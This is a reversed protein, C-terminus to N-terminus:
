SPRFSSPRVNLLRRFVANMHSSDCFGCSEAIQAQTLKDSKLLEKAKSIRMLYLQHSPSNGTAAKFRTELTRRSVQLQPLLDAVSFASTLNAAMLELCRDILRDRVSITRTSKRVIVQKGGYCLRLPTKRVPVGMM